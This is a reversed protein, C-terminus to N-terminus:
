RTCKTSEPKNSRLEHVRVEHRPEQPLEMAVKPINQMKPDVLPETGDTSAKPTTETDSDAGPKKDDLTKPLELDETSM